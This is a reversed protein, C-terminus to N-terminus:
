VGRGEVQEKISEWNSLTDTHMKKWVSQLLDDQLAQVKEEPLYVSARRLIGNIEKITEEL